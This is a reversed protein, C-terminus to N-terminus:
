FLFGQSWLFVMKRENSAQPGRNEKQEALRHPQLQRGVNPLESETSDEPKEWVCPAPGAPEASGEEGARMM